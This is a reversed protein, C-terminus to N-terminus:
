SFNADIQGITLKSGHCRLTILLIGRRNVRGDLDSGPALTLCDGSNGAKKMERLGKARTGRAGANLKLATARECFFPSVVLAALHDGQGRAFCGYTTKPSHDSM